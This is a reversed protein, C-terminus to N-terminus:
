ASRTCSQYVQRYSSIAGQIHYHRIVRERARMSLDSYDHEPLDLMKRWAGALEEPRRPDVVLGTDGILAEIDGVRTGVCPVGCAMAECLSMPLAEGEYSSLTAIYLAAQVRAADERVGLLHVRHQMGAALMQERLPRNSDEMGPGALIFHVDPRVEHVMRGAQLFGPHDKMPHYRALMGILRVDPPIGLERCLADHASPDPRFADPNVGNNVVRMRGRSFGNRAHTEFASESCCIIQAPVLASLRALWGVVRRTSPKLTTRADISHHIGWIIPRRGALMGAISGILSAHYLWTQVVDPRLDRLFSQVKMLKSLEFRRPSLDAYLIPVDLAEFQDKLGGGRLLSVVVHRDSPSDWGRLLGLLMHQAGGVGLDNIVHVIRM